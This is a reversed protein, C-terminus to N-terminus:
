GDSEGGTREEDEEEQLLRFYSLVASPLTDAEFCADPDVRAAVARIAPVVSPTEM